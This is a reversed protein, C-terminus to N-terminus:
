RGPGELEASSAIRIEANTPRIVKVKSKQGQFQQANNGTAHAIRSGINTKRPSKRRSKCAATLCVVYYGLSMDNSVKSIMFEHHM